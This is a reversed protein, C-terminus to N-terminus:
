EYRLAKVPDMKSAKNAPYMGFFVGIVVAFFFALLVSGPTVVSGGGQSLFRPGMTGAGVMMNGVTNAFVFGFIIGLIGGSLSVIVSEILFQILIDVRKAGIAKRIGIERTRETVSVLMINMIGIGGVILSIAAIGSLMIKFTSATQEVTQRFEERNRIRFDEVQDHRELLLQRVRAETVDTPLLGTTQADISRVVNDEGTIRKQATFLPIFIRDDFDNWGVSGKEEMIGIVTFRMNKIKIEKGIPNDNDFLEDKVTKGIVCVKAWSKLEDETFFRGDKVQHNNVFQYSPLAGIVQTDWDRDQYKATIDSRVEPDVDIVFDLEKKMAIADDYTLGESRGRWALAQDKSDPRRYYVSIVNSGLKEIQTTINRKAGEGVGMVGIVAGVGIIIGLVTLFSRLKNAFLGKYGSVFGSIISAMLNADGLNEEVFVAKKKLSKKRVTDEEIKGDKIKISREAYDAVNADHTVMIVTKGEQHLKEFLAMIEKGTKSDLNGTPEDAFIISPNNILARAIAVRQQEGGSLENPDHNARMQLGVVKLANMARKRREEQSVGSYLLPLEVNDLASTRSILNFTQFVFGIKKKRIDSLEDDSLKSVDHGELYYSGSTPRSLCGLIDMMTTKGSGSPGIISLFEGREVTLSVGRLAHVEVNSRCYAKTINKAEILRM